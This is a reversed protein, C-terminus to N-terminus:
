RWPTLVVPGNEGIAITHEFHVVRHGDLSTLTWGDDDIRLRGRGTTLLPEVAIVLGPTIAFDNAPPETWGVQPDEHLARGIGHGSPGEVLALGAEAVQNRVRHVVDAWRRCEGLGRVATQLALRGGDLLSSTPEDIGGVGFSRAADACWGDLRCGTDITVLDGDRIKRDSPIAHLAQDNVSLCSAAPYPSVGPGPIGRFVAEAGADEIVGVIAEDLRRTTVGPCLLSKAARIAEVVVRGARRIGDIEDPSKSRIM